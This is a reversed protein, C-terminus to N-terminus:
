ETVVWVGYALVRETAEEAAVIAMGGMKDAQLLYGVIGDELNHKTTDVAVNEETTVFICLNGPEAKINEQSDEGSCGAPDDAEPTGQRIVHPTPANELPINFSIPVVVTPSLGVRGQSAMGDVAWHGYESKGEPLVGGATWPSGNCVYAPASASKVELGGEKCEKGSYKTATASTGAAGDKGNTGNAGAAGDKGNAGAPGQAGAPGAPGQAGAAGPAGAKGKLQALVSPKIQKTSTVLYKGAAYAGGTMAFVLALTAVVNAFTARKRIGSFM